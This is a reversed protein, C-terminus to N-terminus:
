ILMKNNEQRDTNPTLPGTGPLSGSRRGPEAQDSISGGLIKRTSDTVMAEEHDM